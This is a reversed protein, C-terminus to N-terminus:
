APQEAGVEFVRTQVLPYEDLSIDSDILVCRAVYAMTTLQRLPDALYSLEQLSHPEAVLDVSEEAQLQSRAPLYQNILSHPLLASEHLTRMCLGILYHQKEPTAAWFTLLYHLDVPLSPRRRIGNRDLRPPLSRRSGNIAVRYLVLGAGEAIKPTTPQAEAPQLLDFQARAFETAAAGSKLVQCIALGVASIVHYGAV